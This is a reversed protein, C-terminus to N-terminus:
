PGLLNEHAPSIAKATPDCLGPRTPFMARAALKRFMTRLRRGSQSKVGRRIVIAILSYEFHFKEEYFVNCIKLNRRCFSSKIETARYTSLSRPQRDCDSIIRANRCQLLARTVNRLIKVM